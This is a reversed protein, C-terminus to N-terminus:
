PRPDHQKVEQGRSHGRPQVVVTMTDLEVERTVVRSAKVRTGVDRPVTGLRDRGLMVFADGALEARFM